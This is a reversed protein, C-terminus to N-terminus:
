PEESGKGAVMNGVAHEAGQAQDGAGQPHGRETQGEKQTLMENMGLNAEGLCM